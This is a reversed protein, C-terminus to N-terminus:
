FPIDDDLEAKGGRAAPRGGGGGAPPGGGVDDDMGAGAGAGAEAGGGSRGDLMTLAGGFRPIVVETTYREQGSQDTWKRTSLQGEVYIKSGKRVYKQAVEALKENFIVVRHWETREKREGSQRDRWTDSTAVSMNVMSRGDQMSRVEPDRGLNGVLIVKNVSGAMVGEEEEIAGVSARRASSALGTIIAPLWQGTGSTACRFLGLM